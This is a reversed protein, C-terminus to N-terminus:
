VELNSYGRDLYRTELLPSFDVNAIKGLHHANGTPGFSTVCAPLPSDPYTVLTAAVGQCIPRGGFTVADPRTGSAECSVGVRAVSPFQCQVCLLTVAIEWATPGAYLGAAYAGAIPAFM